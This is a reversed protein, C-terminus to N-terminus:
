FWVQQHNSSTELWPKTLFTFINRTKITFFWSKKVLVQVWVQLTTSRGLTDQTVRQVVSRSMLICCTECLCRDSTVASPSLEGGEHVGTGRRRRSLHGVASCNVDAKIAAAAGGLPKSSRRKQVAADGRQMVFRVLRRRPAPPLVVSRRRLSTWDRLM